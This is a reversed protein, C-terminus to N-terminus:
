IMRFYLTNMANRSIDNPDTPYVLEINSNTVSNIVKRLELGRDIRIRIFMGYKKVLNYTKELMRNIFKEDGIYEYWFDGTDTNYSYIVSTEQWNGSISYLLQVGFDNGDDEFKLLNDMMQNYLKWNIKPKFYEETTM